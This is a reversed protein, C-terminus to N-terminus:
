FTITYDTVTYNGDYVVNTGDMVIVGGMGIKQLVRTNEGLIKDASFIYFNKTDYNNIDNIIMTAENSTSIGNCTFDVGLKVEKGVGTIEDFWIHNKDALFIDDTIQVDQLKVKSECGNWISGCGDVHRKLVYGTENVIYRQGSDSKTILIDREGTKTYRAFGNRYNRHHFDQTYNWFSNVTINYLQFLNGDVLNVVKTGGNNCFSFDYSLINSNNWMKFYAFRHMSSVGLAGSNYKGCLVGFDGVPTDTGAVTTSSNIDSGIVIEDNVITLKNMKFSINTGINITVKYWNDDQLASVPILCSSGISGKWYFMYSIKGSNLYLGSTSYPPNNNESAFLYGASVDSLKHYILCEIKSTNNFVSNPLSFGSNSM